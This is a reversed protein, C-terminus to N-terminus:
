ECLEVVENWADRQATSSAVWLWGDQHFAIDIGHERTLQEIEGIAAESARYLRMAEAEGCIKLLTPLKLAWSLIWGANRGSVGGGCVDQELVVVDCSPDHEKVRVATWLGVYGGGVIAVDARAAGELPPLPPEDGLVQQLWLSRHPAAELPHREGRRVSTLQRKGRSM